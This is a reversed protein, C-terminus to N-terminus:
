RTVVRALGSVPGAVRDTDAHLLGAVVAILSEGFARNRDPQPDPRQPGRADAPPANGVGPMMGHEITRM